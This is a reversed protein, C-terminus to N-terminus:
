LVSFFMKGSYSSMKKCSRVNGFLVKLHIFFIRSLSNNNKNIELRCFMKKLIQLGFACLDPEDQQCADWCFGWLYEKCIHWWLKVHKVYVQVNLLGNLLVSLLVTDCNLMTLWFVDSSVWAEQWHQNTSM